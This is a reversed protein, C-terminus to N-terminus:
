EEAGMMSMWALAETAEEDANDWVEEETEADEEEVESMVVNDDSINNVNFDKLMNSVEEELGVVQEEIRERDKDIFGLAKCIDCICGAERKDRELRVYEMINSNYGYPLNAYDPRPLGIDGAEHVELVRRRRREIVKGDVKREAPEILVTFPKVGRKMDVSSVRGIIRRFMSFETTDTTKFTVSGGEVLAKKFEEIGCGDLVKKPIGKCRKRYFLRGTASQWRMMYSKPGLGIYELVRGEVDPAINGTKKGGVMYEKISHLQSSHILTSDTDRLYWAANLDRWSNLRDDLEDSKFRSWSLVFPGLYSPKTVAKERDIIKGTLMVAGWGCYIARQEGIDEDTLFTMNTVIHTKRFKDVDKEDYCIATKSEVPRMLTYGYIANGMLKGSNYMPSNKPANDKIQTTKSIYETFCKQTSKFILARHVKTLVYGKRLARYIDVSTYVQKEIDELDKYTEGKPGKRWLVAINLDKPVVMDVEVIWKAEPKDEHMMMLLDNMVRECEAEDTTDVYPGCPYHNDHMAGAYFGCYDADFLFDDVEKKYYSCKMMVKEPLRRENDDVDTMEEVIEIGSEEFDTSKFYQKMPLSLGGMVGRRIFDSVSATPIYLPTLGTLTQRWADYSCQSLTVRDKINM